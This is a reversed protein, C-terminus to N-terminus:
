RLIGPALLTMTAMRLAGGSTLGRGVCIPKVGRECSGNDSPVCESTSSAPESGGATVGVIRLYLEGRSVGSAKM